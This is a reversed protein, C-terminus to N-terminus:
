HIASMAAAREISDVVITRFWLHHEDNEFRELYLQALPIPSADFPLPCIVLDRSDFLHTVRESVTLILDTGIIVAGAVMYHPVVVAVRREQRLERLAADVTGISEDRISVLVHPYRLYDSFSITPKFGPHGRSAVCVFRDKAIENVRVGSVRAQFNGIALDVQGTEVLHQAENMNAHRVIIDTLPSLRRVEQVLGPLAVKASYDSMAVVFTKQSRPATGGRSSQLAKHINQLAERIPKALELAKPTPQMGHAGRVLIEDRLIYRLKSLAHSMAPQSLGIREGARSVHREAVLADFAVLLNLDLASLNM